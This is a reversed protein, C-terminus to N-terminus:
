PLSLQRCLFLMRVDNKEPLGIRSFASEKVRDSSQFGLGGIKGPSGDFVGVTLDVNRAFDQVDDIKTIDKKLALAKRGLNTIESATDNVEDLIDCLVIDAGAQAMKLAITRGIGRAGGTVIAVKGSLASM